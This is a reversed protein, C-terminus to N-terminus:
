GSSDIGAESWTNILTGFDFKLSAVSRFLTLLRVLSAYRKFLCIKCSDTEFIGWEIIKQM